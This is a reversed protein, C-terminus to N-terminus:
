PILLINPPKFSIKHSKAWTNVDKIFRSIKYCKNNMIFPDLFLTGVPCDLFISGCLNLPNWPLNMITHTTNPCYTSFNIFNIKRIRWSLIVISVRTAFKDSFLMQVRKDIAKKWPKCKLIKETFIIM